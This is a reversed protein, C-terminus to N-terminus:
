ERRCTSVPCRDNTAASESLQDPIATRRLADVVHDMVQERVRVVAVPQLHVLERDFLQGTAACGCGFAAHAEPGHARLWPGPGM